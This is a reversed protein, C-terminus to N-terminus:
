ESETSQSQLKFPTALEVARNAGQVCEVLNHARAFDASGLLGSLQGHKEVRSDARSTINDLGERYASLADQTLRTM